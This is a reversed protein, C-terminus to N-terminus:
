KVAIKNPYKLYVAIRKEGWISGFGKEPKETRLPNLLEIIEQAGKDLEADATKRENFSQITIFAMNGVGAKILANLKVGDREDETFSWIINRFRHKNEEKYKTLKEILKQKANM